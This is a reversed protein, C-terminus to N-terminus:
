RLVGFLGKTWINWVPNGLIDADHAREVCAYGGLPAAAEAPM